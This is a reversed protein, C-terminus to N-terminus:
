QLHNKTFSSAIVASARRPDAKGRGQQGRSCGKAAYVAGFRHLRDIGIEDFAMQRTGVLLQRQSQQLVEIDIDVCRYQLL